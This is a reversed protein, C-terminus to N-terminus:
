GIDHDKQRRPECSRIGDDEHRTIERRHRKVEPKDVFERVSFPKEGEREGYGNGSREDHGRDDRKGTIDSSAIEENEAARGNERTGKDDHDLQQEVDGKRGRFEVEPGDVRQDGEGEEAYRQDDDADAAGQAFRERLLDKDSFFQRLVTGNESM